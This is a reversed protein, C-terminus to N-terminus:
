VLYAPTGQIDPSKGGGHTQHKAIGFDGLKIVGGTGIMVNSPKLDRHLVGRRHVHWLALCLQVFCLLIEDEELYRKAAAQRQIM